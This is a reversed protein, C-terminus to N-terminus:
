SCCIHLYNHLHVYNLNKLVHCYLKSHMLVFSSILLMLFFALLPLDHTSSADMTLHWDISKILIGNTDRDFSSQGRWWCHTLVQNVDRKISLYSDTVRSVMLPQRHTVWTDTSYKNLHWSLILWSASRTNVSIDLTLWLQPDVSFWQHREYVFYVHIELSELSVWLTRKFSSIVHWQDHSLFELM